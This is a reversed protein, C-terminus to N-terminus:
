KHQSAVYNLSTANPVCEVENVKFKVCGADTKFYNSGDPTPLAPVKRDPPHFVSVFIMGAVAGFFLWKLDIM